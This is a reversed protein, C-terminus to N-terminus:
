LEFITKNINKYRSFKHAAGVIQNKSFGKASMDWSLNHIGAERHREYKYYRCFRSLDSWLKKDDYRGIRKMIPFLPTKPSSHRVVSKLYNIHDELIDRAENSVTIPAKQFNKPYPGSVPQILTVVAGNKEIDGINLKIVENKLLGTCSIIKSANRLIQDNMKQPHDQPTGAIM